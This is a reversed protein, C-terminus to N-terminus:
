RSENTLHAGCNPCESPEGRVIGHCWHCTTSQRDVGIRDFLHQKALAFEGESLLGERHLAALKTMEDGLDVHAPPTPAPTPPLHRAAPEQGHAKLSTFAAALRSAGGAPQTHTIEVARLRSSILLKV